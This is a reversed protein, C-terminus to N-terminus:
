ICGGQLITVCFGQSLTKPQLHGQGSGKWKGCGCTMNGLTVLFKVHGVRVEFEGGGAATVHCFRSEDSRTELIGKAYETLENPEMNVAKDFRSGMRKMCWNRVAELLTLVYMDRNPKTCANFPEVFNTTNHDCCVIRDFKHVSWQEEVGTIIRYQFSTADYEQIKSM